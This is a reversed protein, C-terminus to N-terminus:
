PDPARPAREFSTIGADLIAVGATEHSTPAAPFPSTVGGLLRAAVLAAVVFALLLASRGPRPPVRHPMPSSRGVPRSRSSRYASRTLAVRFRRGRIGLSVRPRRTLNM